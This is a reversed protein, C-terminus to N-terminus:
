RGLYGGDVPLVAGSVYNSAESAFFVVVGAVDAPTGWRGAPIRANIQPVRVADKMLDNNISTEMYGPAIANVQINGAAWENSLSKTLQAIAGKSAAYASSHYGGIFSLVSGINIIKGGGQNMMIPGALQCLQFVATINLEMVNDWSELPLELCSRRDLMGANNVLIDLRGDLAQVAREFSQRVSERDLLNGPVYHLAPREADTGSASEPVNAIDIVAVEAGASRLGEVMGWGLGRSGGTVIATKGSLDFMAAAEMM